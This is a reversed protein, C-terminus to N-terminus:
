DYISEADWNRIAGSYADIEFEYEMNNYIIKGEYEMRGDDYDTRFERIHSTNAGSVQALAIQKAKDASITGSSAAPTNAPAVPITYHEADYDVDRITGTLADIEYDYEKSVSGNVQYFEVDYVQRGDDWDLYSRVFTVNSESLGAHNLAISRAKEEGIPSNAPATSPSQTSIIPDVPTPTTVAPDVVTPQTSQEPATSAPALNPIDPTQSSIITGTLADVDYRYYNGDVIIEVCYYDTGNENELDATVATAAGAGVGVMELARSKAEDVGIYNLQGSQNGCASLATALVLTASLVALRKSKKM